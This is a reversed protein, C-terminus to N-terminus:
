TPAEGGETIMHSGGLGGGRRYAASRRHQQAGGVLVGGREACPHGWKGFHLRYRYPGNGGSWLVTIPSGEPLAALEEPTLWPMQQDASSGVM